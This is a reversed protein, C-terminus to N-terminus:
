FMCPMLTPLESSCVRVSDKWISSGDSCVNVNYKSGACIGGEVTGSKKECKQADAGAAIACAALLAYRWM